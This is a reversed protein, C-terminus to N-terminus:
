YLISYSGKVIFWADDIARVGRGDGRPVLLLNNKGVYDGSFLEAGATANVIGDTVATYAVGAGSRLIIEAGEGGILTQGSLLSVPTFAPDEAATGTTNNNITNKLENLKGDVYSKSVLPDSSSGAEAGFLLWTGGLLFVATLIAIASSKILIKWM